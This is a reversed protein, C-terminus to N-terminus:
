VYAREAILTQAPKWREPAPPPSNIPKAQYLFVNNPRGIPSTRAIAGANFLRGMRQSAATEKWGLEVAAAKATIGAPHLALVALIAAATEPRM